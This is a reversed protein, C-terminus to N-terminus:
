NAISSDTASFAQGVIANAPRRGLRRILTALRAQAQMVLMSRPLVSTLVDRCAIEEAPRRRPPSELHDKGVMRSEERAAVRGRIRRIEEDATLATHTM